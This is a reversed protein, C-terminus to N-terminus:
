GPSIISKLKKSINRRFHSFRVMMKHLKKFNLFSHILLKHKTRLKKHTPSSLATRLFNELHIIRYDNTPIDTYCFAETANLAVAFLIHYCHKATEKLPYNKAFLWREKNATFEDYRHKFSMKSSRFGITMISNPNEQNYYYLPVRLYAIKEAYIFYKFTTALDELARHKPFYVKQAISTKYIKDWVVPEIEYKLIANLGELKTFFQNEQKVPSIKKNNEIKYHDFGIIDLDNELLFKTLQEYATIELYDDSDVFSIYEGTAIKVGTNRAGGAGENTQHIVIIRSDKTTYEDCIDGCKDPSGDNVLIIELNKYTQNIISDICRRLYPEAKYIPVIVSILPEKM